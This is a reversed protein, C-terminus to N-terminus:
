ADCEKNYNYKTEINRKCNADFRWDAVIKDAIMTLSNYGEFDYLTIYGGFTTHDVNNIKYNNKTM